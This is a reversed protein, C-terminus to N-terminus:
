AVEKDTKWNFIDLLETQCKGQVIDIAISTPNRITFPSVQVVTTEKIKDIQTPLAKEIDTMSMPCILCQLPSKKIFDMLVHSQEPQIHTVLVDVGWLQQLRRKYEAETLENPLIDTMNKFPSCSSPIGGLASITTGEHSIVVSDICNISNSLRTIPTSLMPFDMAGNSFYLPNHDLISELHSFYQEYRRQALHLTEDHLAGMPLSMNQYLQSLPSAKVWKFKTANWEVLSEHLKNGYLQYALSEQIDSGLVPFTHLMDGLSLVSAQPYKNLAFEIFDVFSAQELTHAALVLKM